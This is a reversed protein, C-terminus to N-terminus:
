RKVGVNRVDLAVYGHLKMHSKRRGGKGGVAKSELIKVKRDYKM